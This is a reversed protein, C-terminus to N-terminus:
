FGLEDRLGEIWTRALSLRWRETLAVAADAHEAATGTEGVAAAAMALFTDVPGANLASGAQCARGAYPALRDHALRALEADGLRLAVEATHAALYVSLPHEQPAPELSRRGAAALYDDFRETAGARWMLAAVLPALQFTGDELGALLEAARLEEGQWMWLTAQAAATSEAGFSETVRGSLLRMRDLLEVAEDFRGAMALWPMTVAGLVLEGYPIHLREAEVRTVAAAAAMEDVRGLESLV